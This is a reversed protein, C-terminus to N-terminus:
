NAMKVWSMIVWITWVIQFIFAILRRIIRNIARFAILVRKGVVTRAKTDITFQSNYVTFQTNLVWNVERDSSDIAKFDLFFKRLVQRCRDRDPRNRRVQWLVGNPLTIRMYDRTSARTRTASFTARRADLGLSDKTFVWSAVNLCHNHGNATGEDKCAFKIEPYDETAQVNLAYEGNM